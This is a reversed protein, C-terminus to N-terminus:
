FQKSWIILEFLANILAKLSYPSITYNTKSTGHLYESCTAHVFKTASQVTSDQYPQTTPNYNNNRDLNGELHKYFAMSFIPSGNGNVHIDPVVNKNRINLSKYIEEHLERVDGIIGKFKTIDTENYQKLISFLTNEKNPPLLSKDFADFIALNERRLRLPEANQTCYLLENLLKEQDDPKKVYMKEETYYRKLTDFESEDGTLIFRPFGSCTTDLYKLAATIFAADEKVQDDKLLCKIDLVVAAYKHVYKPLLQQLGELSNAAAVTIGKAFAENTFSKIFEQNDDVLVISNM